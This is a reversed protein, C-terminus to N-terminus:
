GIGISDLFNIGFVCFVCYFEIGVIVVVGCLVFLGSGENCVLCFWCDM